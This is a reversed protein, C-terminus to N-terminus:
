FHKKITDLVFEFRIQRELLNTTHIKTADVFFKYTEYVSPDTLIYEVEEIADKIKSLKSKSLNYKRYNYNKIGYKLHFVICFITYFLPKSNFKSVKLDDEFIEGITNIVDQFRNVIISRNKFEDDYRKYYKEIQTKNQMGDLMAIVLESTLEAEAMRSIQRATLINNEEYFLASEFGLKYITNKFIGLYKANLLEQKTLTVTYTNLRAFIDLVIENKAELILDTSIEYKLFDEQVSVPLESYYKGGYEENHAKLMKFGDEMFLFIAKLRQQGDVIERLSKKLEVNIFQRMYIKPVPLGRIITDILYSKAKESWVTRRQFKPSLQLVDKKHWEYFDNVSYTRSDFNKSM